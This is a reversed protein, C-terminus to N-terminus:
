GALRKTLVLTNRPHGKTAPMYQVDDMVRRMLSIGL